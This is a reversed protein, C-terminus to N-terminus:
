GLKVADPAVTRHQRSAVRQADLGRGGEDMAGKEIHKFGAGM